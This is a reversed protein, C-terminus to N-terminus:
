FGLWVRFIMGTLTDRLTAIQLITVQVVANTAAVPQRRLLSVAAHVSTFVADTNQILSDTAILASGCMYMTTKRRMRQIKVPVCIFVADMNLQLHAIVIIVSGNLLKKRPLRQHYLGNLM